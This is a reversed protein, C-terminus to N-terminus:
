EDDEDGNEHVLDDPDQPNDEAKLMTPKKRTLQHVRDDPDENNQEGGIELEGSQLQEDMNKETWRCLTTRPGADIPYVVKKQM